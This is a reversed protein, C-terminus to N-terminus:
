IARPWRGTTSRANHRPWVIENCFNRPDFITDLIVKLYHSATADCHLYLSGTSKLVRHLEVLRIAMMTLYALMHSKGLFLRLAQLAQSIKGGREVVNHFTHASAQDWHWTNEFAKIQAAARSGDKEAFLVSYNRNSNFPPDLYTLDVLEDNIYRRLIDLNPGYYLRNM